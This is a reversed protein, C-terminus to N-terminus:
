KLIICAFFEVSYDQTLQEFTFATKRKDKKKLIWTKGVYIATSVILEYYLRVYHGKFSIKTKIFKKKLDVTPQAM